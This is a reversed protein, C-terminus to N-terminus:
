QWHWSPARFGKSQNLSHASESAMNRNNTFSGNIQYGDRQWQLYTPMYTICFQRRQNLNSSLFFDNCAKFQRIYMSPSCNVYTHRAGSCTTSNPKDNHHILGHNRIGSPFLITHIYAFWHSKIINWPYKKHFFCLFIFCLGM